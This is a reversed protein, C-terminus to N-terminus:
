LQKVLAQLEALQREDMQVHDTLYAILPSVSGGLTSAVFDEVLSKLLNPKGMPPAYRFVGEVKERQLFGKMRLREMVNLATNRTQGKTTALFDGVEGVSAGPHDAIFRLVEMEARGVTKRANMQM